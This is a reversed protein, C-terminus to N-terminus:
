LKRAAAAATATLQSCLYAQFLSPSGAIQADLSDIPGPSSSRPFSQISSLSQRESILWFPVSFSRDVDDVADADATAAPSCVVLTSHTYLPFNYSSASYSTTPSTRRRWGSLFVCLCDPLTTCLGAGTRSQLSLALSLTSLQQQVVVRQQTGFPAGATCATGAAASCRGGILSSPFFPGDGGGCERGCVSQQELNSLLGFIATCLDWERGETEPAQEEAATVCFFPM